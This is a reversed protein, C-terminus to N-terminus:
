LAEIIENLDTDSLCEGLAMLKGDAARDIATSTSVAALTHMEPAIINTDATAINDSNRDSSSTTQHGLLGVTSSGEYMQNTHANNVNSTITTNNDPIIVTNVDQEASSSPYNRQQLNENPQNIIDQHIQLDYCNDNVNQTLHEAPIPKYFWRNIEVGHPWTSKLMIKNEDKKDIALKFTRTLQNAKSVDFCFLVKINNLKCQKRMDEESYGDDM